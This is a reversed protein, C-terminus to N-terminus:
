PHALTHAFHTRWYIWGFVGIGAVASLSGALLLRNATTAYEKRRGLDSQTEARTSGTPAAEGLSGTVIAASFAVAALALSAYGLAPLVTPHENSQLAPAAAPPGISISSVTPPRRIDSSLSPKGVEPDRPSFASVPLFLVHFGERLASNVQPLDKVPSSLWERQPAGTEPHILALRLVLQNHSWALEGTAVRTSRANNVLTALCDPHRLCVDLAAPFASGMKERLERLGVLEYDAELAIAAVALETLEGELDAVRSWPPWEAESERDMTMLVLLREKESASAVPVLVFATALAAAFPRFAGMM